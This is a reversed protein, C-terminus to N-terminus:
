GVENEDGAPTKKRNLERFQVFLKERDVRVEEYSSGGFYALLVSGTFFSVQMFFGDYNSFHEAPIKYLMLLAIAYYGIAAGFAIRRRNTFRNNQFKQFETKDDKEAM